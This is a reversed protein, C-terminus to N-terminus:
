ELMDQNEASNIEAKNVQEIRRRRGKLAQAL